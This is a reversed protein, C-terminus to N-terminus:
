ASKKVQLRFGLQRLTKAVKDSAQIIASGVIDLEERIVLEGESVEARTRLPQFLYRDYVWKKQDLSLPPSFGIECELKIVYVKM